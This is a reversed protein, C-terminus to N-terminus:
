VVLHKRDVVAYRGIGENKEGKTKNRRNKEREGERQIPLNSAVQKVYWVNEIYLNRKIKGV